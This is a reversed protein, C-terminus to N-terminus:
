KVIIRKEITGDGYIHLLPVNYILETEKGLMDIIKVLKRNPKNETINTVGNCNTTFYHQTDIQNSDVLWNQTSWTPNDVTICTLEPNNIAYFGLGCSFGLGFNYNNGNKVNLNTLLNNSCSLLYLYPNNSVDLTTIYNFSCGLLRLYVNHSMDLTTLQNYSCKVVELYHCSSFDLNSINNFYCELSTMNNNLTLTTLQNYTCTLRILNINSSVNLSTLNNQDCNLVTLNTFDEIGTLDNINKYMLTLTDINNISSTNIEGDLISDYGLNILATEFNSDPILTVQGISLYPILIMNILFIIIRNM